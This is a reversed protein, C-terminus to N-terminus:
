PNTAVSSHELPREWVCLVTSVVLHKHDAVNRHLRNGLTWNWTVFEKESPLSINTIYQSCVTAGLFAYLVLAAGGWGELGAPPNHLLLHRFKELRCQLDWFSSNVFSKPVFTM